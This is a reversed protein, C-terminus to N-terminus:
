LILGNRMKEEVDGWRRNLHTIVDQMFKCVVDPQIDIRPKEKRKSKRLVFIQDIRSYFPDVSLDVDYNETVVYFKSYPNGSKIKEATAISGELMTKDLYTKVEVAIIPLNVCEGESSNVSLNLTRYIAFDQDKTNIGTHLNHVFSRLDESKFYLNTYAKANGLQLIDTRDRTTDKLDTVLDRFLIVMFEELITPRLKGQSTFTNDYGNKSFFNYYDNLLRVRDTIVKDSYGVLAMQANIYKLYERRIEVIALEQNRNLNGNEKDRLKSAINSAHVLTRDFEVVQHINTFQM